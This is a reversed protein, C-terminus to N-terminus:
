VPSLNMINRGRGELFSPNYWVQSGILTVTAMKDCLAAKLHRETQKRTKKTTFRVDSDESVTKRSM